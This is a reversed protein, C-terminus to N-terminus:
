RSASIVEFDSVEDQIAFWYHWGSNEPWDTFLINVRPTVGWSDTPVMLSDIIIGIEGNYKVLDGVKGVKM